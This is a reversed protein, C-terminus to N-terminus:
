HPQRWADVSSTISESSTSRRLQLTDESHIFLIMALFIPILTCELNWPGIEQLLITIIIFITRIGEIEDFSVTHTIFSESPFNGTKLLDIVLHFDEVTANRSCMLTTEKAHIAPHQFTLEGKSLGVLVYRGGHAMYEPGSELAAKNGTADFVATALDGNIARVHNHDDVGHSGDRFLKFVKPHDFRYAAGTRTDM